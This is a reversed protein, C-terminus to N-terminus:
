DVLGPLPGSSADGFWSLPEGMAHAVSLWLDGHRRYGYDLLRGTRIRGGARGALVFPVDDHSHTNGDSVESCLVVVSHDLMTGDGEPLAALRDLLYAFRGVFWRRQAVFDTFERRSWDHRAGYHSAQHSRMDFNPDHMESGPIRSMVLESTHHSAQITGVRTMGCAMALVMLDIQATLTTGFEAADYLNHDALGGTDIWPQDCSADVIPDDDDDDDGVPGGGVRREVERLAELHLDMKAADVGGIRDRLANMDDLVADLVSARSVGTDRELPPPGANGFLLSFARRPDDEPPVSVGPSPYSLHKDGSAGNHGAMAGLYLHRWPSGGGATRALLQDISEGAGHDTATLLKKAGGPHSGSDTPGLSLGHLFVCDDRRDALPELLHGLQFDHESGTANWLSPDGEQSAGAVGDPFYFFIVRRAGDDARALRPAGFAAMPAAAALGLRQLLGRRSFGPRVRRRGDIVRSV